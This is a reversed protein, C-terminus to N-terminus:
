YYKSRNDKITAQNKLGEYWGSVALTRLTSTQQKRQQDETEPSDAALTGISNVKILYVASNGEIPASVKTQHQKDFSAGIVKPEPGINAIIQSSFTLTSDAGAVQVQQNYKAAATEFSASAGLNKVITEAKKQNRIISEVGQRATKADQTGEEQIKEVTAVVFQDNMNFPESIDGQKAGFAWKVLPRADQLGGVSFDNEKIITPPNVKQLGNKAVYTDFEKAGKVGSLRTANNNATQVTGESASIEKVMYAIKYAPEFKFQNLVEIYHYGAYNNNDVGLVVKKTGVPEYFVTRYFSDVLNNDYNFRYEGKTAKSGPDDSYKLVLENFDAGNKAATAISDVLRRATSDQRIQNSVQGNKLDAIKILIHRCFVSDPQQKIDVMKALVFNNGETYPGYVGGKSLKEISDKASSQFKSKWTNL